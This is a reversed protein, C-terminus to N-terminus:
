ERSLLEAYMDIKHFQYAKNFIADVSLPTQSASLEENMLLRLHKQSQVYKNTKNIVNTKELIDGALNLLNGADIKTSIGNINLKGLQLM